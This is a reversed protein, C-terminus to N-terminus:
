NCLAQHSRRRLRMGFIQMEARDGGPHPHGFGGDHHRQHMATLFQVHKKSLARRVQGIV